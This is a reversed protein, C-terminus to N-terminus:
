ATNRGRDIRWSSTAVGYTTGDPQRSRHVAPDMARDYLRRNMKLAFADLTTPGLLRSLHEGASISYNEFTEIEIDTPRHVNVFHTAVVGMLDKAYTLLPTTVVSRYGALRAAPRLAAFEEDFEIDDIVVTKGSRLARGCASGHGRVVKRFTELFPQKFNRQEVILLCDGSPLQLTGFEAGNLSMSDDLIRRAAYEFKREAHLRNSM